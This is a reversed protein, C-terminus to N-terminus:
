CPPRSLAVLGKWEFLDSFGDIIVEMPNLHYLAKDHHRPYTTEGVRRDMWKQVNQLDMTREVVTAAETFSLPTHVPPFGDM